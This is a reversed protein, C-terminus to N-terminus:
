LFIDKHMLLINRLTIQIAVANQPKQLLLVNLYRIVEAFILTMPWYHLLLVVLFADCAVLAACAMLIFIIHAFTTIVFGWSSHKDIGPLFVHIIFDVKGSWLYLILPYFMFSITTFTYVFLTTKNFFLITKSWQGLIKDNTRDETSDIVENARYIRELFAVQDKLVNHNLVM